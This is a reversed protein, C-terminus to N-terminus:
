DREIEVIVIPLKKPNHVECDALNVCPRLVLRPMEVEKIIGLAFMEAQEADGIREPFERM